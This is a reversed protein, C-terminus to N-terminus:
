RLSEGRPNIRLVFGGRAPVVHRWTDTADVSMVTYTMHPDDGETVAIIPRDALGIESLPVTVSVDSDQGNLGAIFWTDGTRRAVVILRGPEGILCRSEDWTAPADHLINRVTEPLSEYVDPSDAFHIVGSNFVIPTALEHAATTKRPVHVQTLLFPTIDMPGMLNRTFPLVTNYEAVKDPYRADYIYGELGLVAECSLLNPWTRQWGRPTPCGHLVVVMKRTAADKLTDMMARVAIQRQSAWFDIKVGCIGQSAFWDLKERRAEPDYCDGAYWWALPRVGKDHAYASVQALDLSWWGGDFTTYPWGFTAAMDTFRNFLEPKYPPDTHTLWHWSAGGTRIWSLDEVQSPAAVDTVLTSAYMNKPEGLLIVRWPMDWPLRSTPTPPSVPVKQHTEDPLAFAVHYLGVKADNVLHCCCYSGDTGSEAILAWTGAGIIKFLAPIGWGPSPAPSRSQPPQDGASIPFFFDEDNPTHEGAAHYPTMWGTSHAPIAFGTREELVIRPEARHDPFRYRLAVGDDSAVLDLDIPKGEANEFHLTRRHLLSDVHAAPGTKLDYQQRDDAAKDASTLRLGISFDGDDCVLGLPSTNIVRQGDREVVFAPAGSDALSVIIVNRGDPSALQWDDAQAATAGMLFLALLIRM